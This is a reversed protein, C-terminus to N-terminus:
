AYFDLHLPSLFFITENLYMKMMFLGIIVNTRLKHTFTIKIVAFVITCNKLNTVDNTLKVVTTGKNSNILVVRWNHLCM